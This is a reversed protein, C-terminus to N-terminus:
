RFILRVLLLVGVVGGIIMLLPLLLIQYAAITLAVFDKWDPKVEPEQVGAPTNREAPQDTRYVGPPPDHKVVRMRRSDTGPVTDSHNCESHPRSNEITNQELYQELFGQELRLRSFIPTKELVDHVFPRFDGMELVGDPVCKELCLLVGDPLALLGHAVM